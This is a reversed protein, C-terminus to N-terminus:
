APMLPRHTGSQWNQLRRSVGSGYLFQPELWKTLAARTDLFGGVSRSGSVFKFSFVKLQEKAGLWDEPNCVFISKAPERFYGKQPGLHQLHFM